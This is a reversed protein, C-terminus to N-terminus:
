RRARTRKPQNTDEDAPQGDAPQDTNDAVTQNDDPEDGANPADVQQYGSARLRVIEVANSTDIETKGNTFRPM